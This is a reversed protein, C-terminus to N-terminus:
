PGAVAAALPADAPALPATVTQVLGAVAFTAIAALCALVPKM